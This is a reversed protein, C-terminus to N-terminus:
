LNRIEYLHSFKINILIFIKTRLDIHFITTRIKGYENFYISIDTYGHHRIM